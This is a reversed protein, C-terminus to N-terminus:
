QPRFSFGLRGLEARTTKDRLLELFRRVPARELRSKPIIFDYEEPQMPLFGLGYQQAVTEIAVGWDARGQAIAVAVANHTKAQNSYGAPRGGALLRDILIRTGSGPNRNIMLCAADGAIAAVAAEPACGEFRRDGARFVIGQLRGYGKVLELEGTLYPRNYEGSEPDMLHMAAIDCEGRRAAVLGGTSGVNLSKVTLGQQILRGLMAELGVCNSGIVVLDAPKHRAGILTVEVETGEDLAEAQSGISFFGDAHGFATVAGSGKSTPYALLGGGEAQVLSVMVYETRGRESSVRMPLTATLSARQEPGLGAFARILPAVFEHFTFIASTPFGPLIVVPKGHTVALCIPKGPKLAAGHVVVGPAELRSVVRYAIDGAGKSTGGSLLAMDYELAQQLLASLAAENDPAIGLPVAVGGLEEVAAALIFQNSDYVGGTRMPAGPTVLEDGTSFIAVRPKRWVPIECRGIAALVGIERSTLLQGARMVTEGRAIDSGAAATYQGPAVARRVEITPAALGEAVETHEVMVVADAGRPIMGGTAVVTATGAEVEEQPVIGPTLLEANLRLLRPAENSAGATDAARVAFGDMLSRDFGPVDCVAVVDESLVRGLAHGLAVSEAGLPRLPVHRRFRAEAEDRDVVDLFQEQRAAKLLAVQADTKSM